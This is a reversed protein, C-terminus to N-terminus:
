NLRRLQMSFSVILGYVGGSILTGLFGLDAVLPNIIFISLVVTPIFLITAMKYNVFLEAKKSCHPCKKQTGFRNMAKSFVSIKSMCHPCKM